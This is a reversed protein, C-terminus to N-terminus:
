VVAYFILWNEFNKVAGSLLFIILEMIVDTAVSDQSIKNDGKSYAL